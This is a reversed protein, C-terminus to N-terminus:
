LQSGLLLNTAFPIINFDSFSLTCYQSRCFSSTWRRRNWYAAFNFRTDSGCYRQWAIDRDISGLLLSFQFIYTAQWVVKSGNQTSPCRLRCSEISLGNRGVVGLVKVIYQGQVDMGFHWWDIWPQKLEVPSWNRLNPHYNTTNSAVEVPGDVQYEVVIGVKDAYNGIPLKSVGAANEFPRSSAACYGHRRKSTPIEYGGRSNLHM